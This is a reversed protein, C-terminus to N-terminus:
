TEEGDGYMNEFKYRGLIPLQMYFSGTQMHSRRCLDM